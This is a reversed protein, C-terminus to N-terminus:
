GGGGPPESVRKTIYRANTWEPIRFFVVEGSIALSRGNIVTAADVAFDLGLTVENPDGLRFVRLITDFIDGDENSDQDGQLPEGELFAVLDGETAVPPFAFPLERVRPTARGPALQGNPDQPGILTAIGTDRDRLTVVFDTADGDANLDTGDIAESLVFAFTDEGQVLGELPVPTESLASYEEPSVVVPGVGDEFRSGFDFLEGCTASSCEGGSTCPKGEDMGGVCGRRAVRIVSRTADTSGFLTMTNPDTPDSLPSFVPPLIVGEPSYSAVFSDAPIDVPAGAESFAGISAGIRILRPIPIGELRLLVGAWDVPALVNGAQDTTFRVETLGPNTVMAEFNNPPPLATFHGFTPNRNEPQTRCTGDLEFLEDVCALIGVTGVSIDACRQSPDALQCPLSAERRTVVITMPGALTRDDTATQPDNPDAFFEDTDPFRFQLETESAEDVALGVPEGLGNVERCEAGGVAPEAECGTLDLGACDEALIIATADASPPVFLMTVMYDDNVQGDSDLDVYRIADAGCVGPRLRVEVYDGPGAFPRNVSGIASRFDRTAAPIVNCAAWAEPVWCTLLLLATIAGLSSFRNGHANSNGASFRIRTM